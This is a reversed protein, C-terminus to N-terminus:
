GPGGPGGSTLQSGIECRHRRGRRSATTAFHMFFSVSRRIASAIFGSLHGPPSSVELLEASDKSGSAVNGSRLYGAGGIQLKRPTATHVPLVAGWRAGNNIPTGYRSSRAGESAKKRCNAGAEPLDDTDPSMEDSCTAFQHGVFEVVRDALVGFPGLPSFPVRALDLLVRELILDFGIAVEAGFFGGRRLM